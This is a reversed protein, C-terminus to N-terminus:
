KKRKRMDKAKSRAEEATMNGNRVAERLRRARTNWDSKNENSRVKEKKIVTCKCTQNSCCAAASHNNKYNKRHKYNPTTCGALTVIMITAFLLKM